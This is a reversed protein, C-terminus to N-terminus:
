EQLPLKVTNRLIIKIQMDHKILAEMCSLGLFHEDSRGFFFKCDGWFSHFPFSYPSHPPPIPKSSPPQITKSWAMSHCHFSVFESKMRVGSLAGEIVFKQGKKETRVVLKTYTKRDVKHFSGTSYFCFLTFPFFLRFVFAGSIHINGKIREIQNRKTEGLQTSRKVALTKWKKGSEAAPM